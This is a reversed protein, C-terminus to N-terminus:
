LNGTTSINASSGLVAINDATCLRIVEEQLSGANILMALTGDVTAADLTLPDVNKMLPHEPNYRGICGLPLNFEKVFWHVIEEMEPTLTHLEKHLEYTGGMAHRKHAGRKKTMFIKELAKPNSTSITYGMSAPIIAIGGAKLVNYVRKADAQVDPAGGSTRIPSM